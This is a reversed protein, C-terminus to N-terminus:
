DRVCRVCYGMTEIAYSRWLGLKGLTRNWPLRNYDPNVSNSWWQGQEGLSSFVGDKWSRSGSPLSSFGSTNTADANPITWLTTTKMKGGVSEAGIRWGTGGVESSAMGLALELQQWEADTPVHWGQPCLGGRDAVAFWNYLKGYTVDHSPKNDYNCWAGSNLQTWAAADKENPISSGDQYRTTRLNEALWVQKGIQITAYTNGDIDTVSGYSLDPNLWPKTLTKKAVVKFRIGDGALERDQLVAWLIRKSAGAVVNKGVDGSCNSLPGQWNRGQDASVFLDVNVPGDAELAYSIVLDHGQQEARVNTVRQALAILPACNIVLIFLFRM